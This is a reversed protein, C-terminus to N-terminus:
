QRIIIFRSKERCLKSATEFILNSWFGVLPLRTTGHPRISLRVSAVFSITAKRFKAFAGLFATIKVPFRFVYWYFQTNDVNSFFCFLTVVRGRTVFYLHITQRWGPSVTRLLYVYLLVANQYLQIVRLWSRRFVLSYACDCFKKVAKTHPTSNRRLGVAYGLITCIKWFDLCRRLIRPTLFTVLFSNWESSGDSIVRWRVLNLRGLSRAGPIPTGWRNADIEQKPFHKEQFTSVHFPSCIGHFSLTHDLQINGPDTCVFNMVLKWVAILCVYCTQILSTVRKDTVIELCYVHLVICEIVWVCFVFLLIVINVLNFFHSIPSRPCCPMIKNLHLWSLEM